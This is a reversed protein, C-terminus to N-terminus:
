RYGKWYSPDSAHAVTGPRKQKQKQKTKNKLNSSWQSGPQFVTQNPLEESVLVMHTQATLLSFQLKFMCSGATALQCFLLNGRPVFELGWSFLCLGPLIPNNMPTNAVVKM